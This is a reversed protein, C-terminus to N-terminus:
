KAFINIKISDVDARALANTHLSITANVIMSGSLLIFADDAKTVKSRLTFNSVRDECTGIWAIAAITYCSVSRSRQDSNSDGALFVSANAASQSVALLGTAFGDASVSGLLEVEAVENQALDFRYEARGQNMCGGAVAAWGEIKLEIPRVLAASSGAALGCGRDTTVEFDGHRVTITRIPTRTFSPATTAAGSGTSQASVLHTGDKVEFKLTQSVSSLRQALSSLNVGASSLLGRYAAGNTAQFAAIAKRRAAPDLIKSIRDVEGLLRARLAPNAKLARDIKADEALTMTEVQKLQAPSLRMDSLNQLTPIAIRREQAALPSAAAAGLLSAALVISMRM